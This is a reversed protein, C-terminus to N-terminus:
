PWAMSLRAVCQGFPAYLVNGEWGTCLLDNFVSSTLAMGHEVQSYTKDSLHKCCTERKSTGYCILLVNFVRSTLAMGHEVQSRMTQFTRVTRKGGVWLTCLTDVAM